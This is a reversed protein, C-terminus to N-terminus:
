PQVDITPFHHEEEYTPGTKTDATADMINYPVNVILFVIGAAQDYAARDAESFGSGAPNGYVIHTHIFVSSAWDMDARRLAELRDLLEQYSVSNEDGFWSPDWGWCGDGWRTVLTAYEVGYENSQDRVMQEAQDIAEARTTCPWPTEAQRFKQVPEQGCGALLVLAILKKM